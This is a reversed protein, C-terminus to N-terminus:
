IKLLETMQHVSLISYSTIPGPMEYDYGGVQLAVTITIELYYVKRKLGIIFFRLAFFVLLM